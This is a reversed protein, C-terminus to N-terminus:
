FLQQNRNGFALNSSLEMTINKWFGFYLKIDNLMTQLLNPFFSIM